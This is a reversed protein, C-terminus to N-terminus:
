EFKDTENNWFGDLIAVGRNETQKVMIHYSEYIPPNFEMTTINGEAIHIIKYNEDLFAYIYNEM